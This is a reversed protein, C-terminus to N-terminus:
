SVQFQMGTLTIILALGVSVVLFSLQVRGIYVSFGKNINSLMKVINSPLLTKMVKKVFM